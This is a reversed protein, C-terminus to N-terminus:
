AGVRIAKAEEIGVSSFAPSIMPLVNFCSAELLQLKGQLGWSNFGPSVACSNSPELRYIEQQFKLLISPAIEPHLKKWAVNQLRLM